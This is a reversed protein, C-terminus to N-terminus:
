RPERPRAWECRTFWGPYRSKNKEVNVTCKSYITLDGDATVAAPLLSPNYWPLAHLNSIKARGIFFYSCSVYALIYFAVRASSSVWAQFQIARFSLTSLYIYTVDQDLAYIRLLSVEKLGKKLLTRRLLFPIPAIGSSTLTISFYIQAYMHRFIARSIISSSFGYKKCFANLITLFYDFPLLRSNNSVYINYMGYM